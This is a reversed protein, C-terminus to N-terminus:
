YGPKLIGIFAAALLLGWLLLVAPRVWLLASKTATLAEPTPSLGFLPALAWRVLLGIAICASLILVKLGVFLPMSLAGALAAVGVSLLAAAVLGRIALDLARLGVGPAARRLHIFWALVLWALSASWVALLVPRPAAWWGQGAALTWGTPLALIAASTPGMGLAALVRLALSREQPTRRPDVVFSSVYFVGLDAGIWYAFVLIHSLTFLSLLM